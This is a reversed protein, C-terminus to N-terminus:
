RMQRIFCRVISFWKPQNARAQILATLSLPQWSPDLPDAGSFGDALPMKITQQAHLGASLLVLFALLLAQTRSITNGLVIM